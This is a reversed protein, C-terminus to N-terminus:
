GFIANFSEEDDRCVPCNDVELGVFFRGCGECRYRRLEHLPAPAEGQPQWQHQLALADAGCAEICVGCGVCQEARFALAWRSEVEAIKLAGTPCVRACAECGTCRGHRPTLTAIDLLQALAPGEPVAAFRALLHEALQRRPPVFHAAARIASEPVAELARDSRVSEVARNTFRRFLQRRDARHAPGAEGTEIGPPCWKEPADDGLLLMAALLAEVREGGHPANACGACQGAGRLTVAIGRMALSALLAPDIDGLCPIRVDGEQGSPSCAVALAKEQPRALAATPFAPLHFTATPCAAACLGCGRCRTADLEVGEEGPALAGAPCSDACRTCASYRFRFRVCRQNRLEPLNGIATSM